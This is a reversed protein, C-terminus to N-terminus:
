TFRRCAKIKSSNESFPVSGVAPMTNYFGRIWIPEPSKEILAPIETSNKRYVRHDSSLLTIYQM